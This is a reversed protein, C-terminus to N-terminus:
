YISFFKTGVIGTFVLIEHLIKKLYKQNYFLYVEREEEGIKPKRGRKKHTPLIDEQLSGTQWLHFQTRFLTRRSIGTSLAVDISRMEPTWINYAAIKEGATIKRYVM